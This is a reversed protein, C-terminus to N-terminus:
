IVNRLFRVIFQFILLIAFVSTFLIIETDFANCIASLSNFFFNLVYQM